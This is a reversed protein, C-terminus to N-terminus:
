KVVRLHARRQRRKQIRDLMEDAGELRGVKKGIEFMAEGHDHVLWCLYAIVAVVAIPLAIM